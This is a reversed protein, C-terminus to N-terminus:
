HEFGSAKRAIQLLEGRNKYVRGSGKTFVWLNSGMYDCVANLAHVQITLDNINTGKRRTALELITAM